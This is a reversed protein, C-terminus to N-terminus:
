LQYKTILNFFILLKLYFKVKTNLCFCHFQLFSYCATVFFSFSGFLYDRLHKLVCCQYLQVDTSSYIKSMCFMCSLLVVSSLGAYMCFNASNFSFELLEKSPMHLHCSQFALLEHMSFCLAYLYIESSESGSSVNRSKSLNKRSNGGLSRRRHRESTKYCISKFKKCNRLALTKLLVKRSVTQRSM